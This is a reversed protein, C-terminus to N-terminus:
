RLASYRREAWAAFVSLRGMIVQADLEEIIDDAYSVEDKRSLVAKFAKLAKKDEAARIPIAGVLFDAADGHDGSKSKRGVARVALADAYAIAAHVCLVAIGNGSFDGALTAMQAADRQFGRGKALYRDALEPSVASFPIRRTM